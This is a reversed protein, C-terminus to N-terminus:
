ILAIMIGFCNLNWLLFLAAINLRQLTLVTMLRSMKPGILFRIWTNTDVIVRVEKGNKM